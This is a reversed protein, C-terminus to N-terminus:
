NKVEMNHGCFFVRWLVPKSKGVSYPIFEVFAGGGELAFRITRSRYTPLLSLVSHWVGGFTIGDYLSSDYGLLDQDSDGGSDVCKWGNKDLITEGSKSSYSIRIDGKSVKQNSEIQLYKGRLPNGLNHSANLKDLFLLRRFGDDPDTQSASGAFIADSLAKHTKYPLTMSVYLEKGTRQIRLIGFDKNDFHWYYPTALLASPFFCATFLLGLSFARFTKL